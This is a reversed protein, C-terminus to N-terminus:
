QGRRGASHRYQAPNLDFRRRFARAFQSPNTFGVELAIEAVSLGSHLLLDQATALRKGRSFSAISDGYRCKFCRKLDCENMGVLASLEAITPPDDLRQSLIEAALRLKTVTRQPLTQGESGASPAMNHKSYAWALLALISQEATLIDADDHFGLDLLGRAYSLSREDIDIQGDLSTGDDSRGHMLFRGVQCGLGRPCGACWSDPFSVVVALTTVPDFVIRRASRGIPQRLIHLAHLCLHRSGGRGDDAYVAARGSVTVCFCSGGTPLLVSQGQRRVLNLQIGGRLFISRNGPESDLHANHSGAAGDRLDEITSRM